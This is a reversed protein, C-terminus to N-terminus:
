HSRGEAQGPVCPIGMINSFTNHINSIIKWHNPINMFSKETDMFLKEINVIWTGSNTIYKWDEYDSTNIFISFLIM